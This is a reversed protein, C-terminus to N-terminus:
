LVLEKILGQYIVRDGLMLGEARNKEECWIKNNRCHYTDRRQTLSCAAAACRIVYCLSRPWNCGPDASRFITCSGGGVHFPFSGVLSAAICLVMYLSGGSSCSSHDLSSLPSVRSNPCPTTSSCVPFRVPPLPARYSSGELMATKVQAPPM